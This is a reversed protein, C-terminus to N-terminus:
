SNNQRHILIQNSDSNDDGYVDCLLIRRIPRSFKLQLKRVCSPILDITLQSVPKNSKKEFIALITSSIIFIIITSFIGESCYYMFSMRSLPFYRHLNDDIPAPTTPLQLYSKTDNCQTSFPPTIIQLPLLINGAVIWGSWFISIILSIIAAKHNAQPCFIGVCYLAFVPGVIISVLTIAAQVINQFQVILVLEASMIAGVAVVLLKCVFTAMKDTMQRKETAHTIIIASISNLLSSITSLSACLMGSFFIGPFYPYRHLIDMAFHPLLQNINELTGDRVVHCGKYYGFIILGLSKFATVYMSTMFTGITAMKQASKLTPAMLCRQMLTQNIATHSLSLFSYGLMATWISHRSLVDVNFFIWRDYTKNTDYIAQVGGADIIGMVLVFLLAVIMILAQIADAILIGRIGGLTSYIICATTMISASIWVELSSVQQITISSLYINISGISVMAFIMKLLIIYYVTQGFRVEFYKLMSVNNLKYFVPVVLHYVFCLLIPIACAFMIPQSGFLYTEIGFSAMGGAAYSSFYSLLLLVFQVKRGALFYENLTTQKYKINSLYLGLGASSILSIALIVYDEAGFLKKM